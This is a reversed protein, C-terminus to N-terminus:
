EQILVYAIAYEKEHAISVLTNEQNIVPKGFEDNIVSIDRFGVKGIGTGLAKSYAEKCAFRGALFEKKRHENPIKTFLRYEDDSLIKKVFAETCQIRSIQVIDVGIGKIM